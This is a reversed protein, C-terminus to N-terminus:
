IAVTAGSGSDMPCSPWKHAAPGRSKTPSGGAGPPRDQLVAALTQTARGVRIRDPEGSGTLTVETTDYIAIAELTAASEQYHYYLGLTMAVGSPANLGPLAHDLDLLRDSQPYPLPNLVVRNVLTFIAVNAGIALALTTLTTIAFAPSRSLRRAAHTIERQFAQM